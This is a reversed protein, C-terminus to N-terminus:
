RRKLFKAIFFGQVKDSPLIRVCQQVRPDFVKKQWSALAPYTQAEQIPFDMIEFDGEAKRLFWDVVGENEEPAFTCTSYVLTGGPKLQRGAHLLLGKQKKVMEKIKRASWYAFTKPEDARFRGESSCPADVLVRDYLGGRAEFRRGDMCKFEVNRCELLGCVSRLKYYRGRIAEVATVLGTNKMRAAIQSTKSGPAACLDLVREEPQPDLAAVALMSAFSQQYFIGERILAHDKLHAQQWNCIRVGEGADPCDCFSAGENKLLERAKEPSIKLTNIRLFVPQETEFCSVAQDYFVAPIIQELRKLFDQPIHTKHM